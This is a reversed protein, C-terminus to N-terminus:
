KRGLIIAEIPNPDKVKPLMNLLRGHSPHSIVDWEALAALYAHWAVADRDPMEGNFADLDLEIREKLQTEIGVETDKIMALQDTIM